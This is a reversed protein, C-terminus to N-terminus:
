CIPTAKVALCKTLLSLDSRMNNIYKIYTIMKAVESNPNTAMAVPLVNVRICSPPTRNALLELILKDSNINCEMYGGSTDISFFLNFYTGIVLLSFYKWWVLKGKKEINNVWKKEFTEPILSHITEKYDQRM